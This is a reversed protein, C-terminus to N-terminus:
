IKNRYARKALELRELEDTHVKLGKKLGLRESAAEFSLYMQDQWPKPEM